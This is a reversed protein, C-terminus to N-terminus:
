DEFIERLTNQRFCETNNLFEDINQIGLRVFLLLISVSKQLDKALQKAYAMKVLALDLFKALM